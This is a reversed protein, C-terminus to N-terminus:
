RLRGKGTIAGLLRSLMGRQGMSKIMGSRELDKIRQLGSLGGMDELAGMLAAPKIGAQQARNMRMLLQDAAKVADPAAGTNRLNGVHEAVMQATINRGSGRLKDFVELEQPSMPKYFNRYMSGTVPNAMRNQTALIDNAEDGMDRLRNLTNQQIDGKAVLQQAWEDRGLGRPVDSIRKYAGMADSDGQGVYGLAERFTKENLSKQRNGLIKYAGYGAAGLLPVHMSFPLKMHGFPNDGADEAIQNRQAEWENALGKPMSISPMNRSFMERAGDLYENM